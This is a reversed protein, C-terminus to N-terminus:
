PQFSSLARETVQGGQGDGCGRVLMVGYDTCLLFVAAM